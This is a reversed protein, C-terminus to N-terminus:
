EEKELQENREEAEILEGAQMITSKKKLNDLWEQEAEWFRREVARLKGLLRAYTKWRMGKPRQPTPAAPATDYGYAGLTAKLRSIRLARGTSKQAQRLRYSLGLCARCGFATQGPPCYVKRCRGGCQPCTFWWRQGGYHPRTSQLSFTANLVPTHVHGDSTGDLRVIWGTEGREVTFGVIGPGSQGSGTYRGDQLVAIHEKVELAAADLVLCEEVARKRERRPWQGSGYGGM